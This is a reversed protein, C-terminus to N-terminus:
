RGAAPGHSRVREVAAKWGAYLAERREPPMSPTFLRDRRRHAALSAADKWLGVGLGALFAAGAATTEVLAPRDVPVGLLDAQFQMLFDNACAGGDVRLERLPVGSEDNMADIVDRSQYALSELTARVLHARGAGRTLGLIAGRADPDWYPAGLGTFAPVVYVGATDPVSEAIPGTEAATKVLGMEDRLWQVAAGAVFVSGELAYAARGQADCCLTTLLGRRSIVRREGTNLVLFAGTGYTNKAMGPEFCGQGFLAAQQDGADGAIPVGAPIGDLAVTEGFVGSSPRVEPLVAAPVGLIRLLEPDWRRTHIDFLLTRSANTPDTAHVQGGTLRHVLWSDITGFAIEGDLARAKLSPNGELLWAIKSGSFYPDLVLGTREHFVPEHGEAKLRACIDSSQRSQWVIARYVPDGTRRDWLVTTERQNTIGIARLAAPAIGSAAIAEAAVRRTKQWIEEADHEVWGPQPYHQTIEAYARGLVEGEPGLVFATSGTTGQDLALVAADPRPSM